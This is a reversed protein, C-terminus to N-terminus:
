SNEQPGGKGECPGRTVLYHREATRTVCLKDGANAQIAILYPRFTKRPSLRCHAMVRIDTEILDGQDNGFRFFVPRGRRGQCGHDGLADQPFFGTDATMRFSVHGYDITPQTLEITVKKPADM